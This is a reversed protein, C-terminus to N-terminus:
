HSFSLFGPALDVNQNFFQLLLENPLVIVGKAVIAIVERVRKVKFQEILGDGSENHSRRL